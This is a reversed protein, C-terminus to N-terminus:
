SIEIGTMFPSGKIDLNAKNMSKHRMTQNREKINDLKLTNKKEYEM